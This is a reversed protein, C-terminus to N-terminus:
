QVGGRISPAGEPPPPLPPPVRRVLSGQGGWSLWLFHSAHWPYCIPPRRRAPLIHLSGSAGGTEWGLQVLEAWSLAAELSAAQDGRGEEREGGDAAAGGARLCASM